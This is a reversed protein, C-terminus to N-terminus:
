RVSTDGEPEEPADHGRSKYFIAFHEKAKETLFASNLMEGVFTMAEDITYTDGMSALHIAAENIALNFYALLVPDVPKFIGSRTAGQIEKILNEMMEQYLRSLREKAWPDGIIVGSRLQNLIEGIKSYHAYFTKFMIKSRLTPDKENRVAQRIEKKFNRIVYEITEVFLERKDKFYRYFTPTSIGVAKAIDRINTLYYGRNSYMQLTAEIIAEKRGAKLTGTKAGRAANDDTPGPKVLSYGESLRYKIVDLPIRSTKATKLYDLKIKQIAELRKVHGEDYYAMTHGTKHPRHMLGYNVYHHITSRSIGTIKELDSIKLEKKKNM